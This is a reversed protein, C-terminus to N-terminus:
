ASPDENFAGLFAQCFNVDEQISGDLMELVSRLEKLRNSEEPKSDSSTHTDKSAAGQSLDNLFRSAVDKDVDVSLTKLVRGLRQDLNGIKENFDEELYRRIDKFVNNDDNTLASKLVELREGRCAKHSGSSIHRKVELAHIYHPRMAKKVYSYHSGHDVSNQQLHNVDQKDFNQFWNVIRSCLVKHHYALSDILDKSAEMGMVKELANKTSKFERSSEALFSRLTVRMEDCFDEFDSVLDDAFIDVIDQNWTRDPTTLPDGQRYIMWYLKTAKKTHDWDRVVRDGGSKYGAEMMAFEQIIQLDFANRVGQILSRVSGTTNVTFAQILSIVETKGSHGGRIDHLIQDQIGHQLEILVNDIVARLLRADSLQYIHYRLQPAGTAEVNITPRQALETDEDVM